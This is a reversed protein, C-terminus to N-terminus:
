SLYGLMQRTAKNHQTRFAQHANGGKKAQLEDEQDQEMVVTRCCCELQLVLLTQSYVVARPPMVLVTCWSQSTTKKDLQYTLQYQHARKAWSNWNRIVLRMITPELGIKCHDKQYDELKGWMSKIESETHYLTSPCLNAWVRVAHWYGNTPPSQCTLTDSYMIQVKNKKDKSWIM